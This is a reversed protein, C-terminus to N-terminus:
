ARFLGHLLLFIRLFGLSSGARCLSARSVGEGGSGVLWNISIFVFCWSFGCFLLFGAGSFGFLVWGTGFLDEFVGVGDGDLAGRV